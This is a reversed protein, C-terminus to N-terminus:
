PGAARRAASVGCARLGSEVLVRPYRDRGYIEEQYLWDLKGNLIERGGDNTLAREKQTAIDVAYLNHARVFAVLQGDPSFTAEEEIGSTATLRSAKATPVDYFYLDDAITVLAGTRTPNFTLDDSRAILGAEARTVGPLSALATEMRDADFLPSTRGSTADVKLWEYGSGSQRSVVYTTADLWALDSQPVGSFAVRGEPHYISDVTLLGKSQAALTVTVGMVCLCLATRKM